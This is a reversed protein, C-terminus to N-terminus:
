EKEKWGTAPLKGEKLLDGYKKEPVASKEGEAKELAKEIKEKDKSNKANLIKGFDAGYNNRNKKDKGYHCVNCKQVKAEKVEPYKETFAKFYQPRAQAQESTSLLVGVGLFLGVVLLSGLKWYSRM